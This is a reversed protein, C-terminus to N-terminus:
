ENEKEKTKESSVKDCMMWVKKFFDYERSDVDQAYEQIGDLAITRIQNIRDDKTSSMPMDDMYENDYMDMDDEFVYAESMVRNLSKIENLTRNLNFNNIRKM